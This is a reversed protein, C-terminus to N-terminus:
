DCPLAHQSSYNADDNAYIAWTKDNLDEIQVYVDELQSFTTHSRFLSLMNTM